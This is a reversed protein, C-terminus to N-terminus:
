RGVLITIQRESKLVWAGNTTLFPYAFLTHFPFCSMVKATSLPNGVSGGNALSTSTSYVTTVRANATCDTLAGSTPSTSFKEGTTQEIIYEAKLDADSGAWTYDPSFPNTSSTALYQAADRTASELSSWTLYLRSADIVVGAIALLVPLVISFEVLSQGRERITRRASRGPASTGKKALMAAM